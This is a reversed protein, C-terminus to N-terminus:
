RHAAIELTTGAMAAFVFANGITRAAGLCDLAKGIGIAFIARVANHECTRTSPRMGYANRAARNRRWLREIALAVGSDRNPSNTGFFAAAVCALGAIEEGFRWVRDGAM